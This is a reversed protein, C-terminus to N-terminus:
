NEWLLSTLFSSSYNAVNVHLRTETFGDRFILMWQTIIPKSGSQFKSMNPFNLFNLSQWSVYNKGAYFQPCLVFTLKLNLFNVRPAPAPIKTWLIKYVRSKYYTTGREEFTCTIDSGLWGSCDNRPSLLVFSMRSEFTLLEFSVNLIKWSCKKKTMIPNRSM